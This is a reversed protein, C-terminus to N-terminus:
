GSAKGLVVERAVQVWKLDRRLDAFRFDPVGSQDKGLLEGPGRLRLDAEAIEFGDRTRELVGLREMAEPTKKGCVLVCYSEHAGRGIRGRLQHLQALGFQEANEIVMVTANPVDIGVEIVSTAALVQLSGARFRDIVEQKRAAALGGHLLGVTLPDLRRVLEAFERTVSKVASGGADEVRPYVVYIQRGGEVQAKVFEWVKSMQAAERIYTKVVGRGAPPHRIVSLDLDGYLTLGLTRPIPTATMVLLHPFHGKRLLTERQAVGFKHQEDIVVLGLNAVEASDELLAHTGIHLAPGSGESPTKRSGTRLVIRVPMGELWRCFHAHHQEALIETPAMLVVDYGSELVMLATCAAVVTKGCGVDGQLLRRMPSKGALDKRIEKLVGTQSETLRFGVLKLFPRIWRNDGECPLPKSNMELNRRRLSLKQQLDILEDLALRVRANEVDELERPFHLLRVAEARSLPHPVTVGPDLNEIQESYEALKQWILHRLWRQQLGETLPYIPVIRQLHIPNEIGEEVTETEPHDMAMPRPSTLKGFVFVDDGVSFYRQMFPLNWWRCTLRAKGDDLVLEFVSRGTKKAIRVGMAAVRGRVVAPTDLRLAKIPLIQRRDEHRRPKHLFLDELTRMGLRELIATREPGIGRFAGIPTALVPLKGAVLPIDNVPSM